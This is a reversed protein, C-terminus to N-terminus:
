QGFLPSPHLLLRHARDNRNLVQKRQGGYLIRRHNAKKLLATISALSSTRATTLRELALNATMLRRASRVFRRKPNVSRAYSGTANTKVTKSLLHEANPVSKFTPALITLYRCSLWTKQAHAVPIFWLSANLALLSNVIFASSLCVIGSRMRSTFAVVIRHQVDFRTSVRNFGLLSAYKGIQNRIVSPDAYKTKPSSSRGRTIVCRLFM